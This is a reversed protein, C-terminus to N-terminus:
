EPAKKAIATNTFRRLILNGIAQVIVLICVLDPHSTLSGAGWSAGAVIVSLANFWMTKSALWGKTEM